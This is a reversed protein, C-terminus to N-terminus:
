VKADQLAMFRFMLAATTVEKALTFFFRVVDGKKLDVLRNTPLCHRADQRRMDRSSHCLSNQNATSVAGGRGLLVAHFQKGSFLVKNWDSTVLVASVSASAIDAEVPVDLTQFAVNTAHAIAAVLRAGYQYLSALFMITRSSKRQCSARTAFGNTRTEMCVYEQPCRRHVDYYRLGMELDAEFDAEGPEPLGVDPMDGGGGGAATLEAQQVIPNEAAIVPAAAVVGNPDLDRDEPRVDVSPLPENVRRRAINVSVSPRAYELQNDRRVKAHGGPQHDQPAPRSSVCLETYHESGLFANCYQGGSVDDPHQDCNHSGPHSRPPEGQRIDDRRQVSVTHPINNYLTPVNISADSVLLDTRAAVLGGGAHLWALACRGTMRM